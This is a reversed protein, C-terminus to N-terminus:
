LVIEMLEIPVYESLHEYYEDLGTNGICPMREGIKLLLNFDESIFAREKLSLIQLYTFKM